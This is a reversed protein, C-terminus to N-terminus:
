STLTELPRATAQLTVGERAELARFVRALSSLTSNGRPGFMRHLSKVAIGTEAALAEFGVTANIYDRLIRRAADAEGALLADAADTLLASRFAADAQARERVTECFNRTLAM